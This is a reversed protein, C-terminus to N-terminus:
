KGAAPGMLGAKQGILDALASQVYARLEKAMAKKRVPADPDAAPAVAPPWLTYKLLQPEAKADNLVLLEDGRALAVAKGGGSMKFVTFNEDVFSDDFLSRGWSAHTADALGLLGLVSPIVNNHGAVRHDVTGRKDTLGPALFLLPVHHYLLNVETLKPRTAFGHDGVFVFLTDNFYSLKRAAAVFEGVAHDAYRMAELRRSFDGMETIPAAGPVPPVEFPAHNSLTMVAAFFPRGKEHAAQFERNCRDFLDGDSVGWVHDLYKADAAMEDGGVFTDVGQKRFFGRMNDWSFNGNYLFFTQYDRARLVSALSCFEQNSVGSEMLTEYGPLNPFGLQTAYIGQHTHSGASFARDFLVGDKAVADFRPTFSREAGTAGCFRASFSEMMVVVVNAPRGSSTKLKLSSAVPGRRLVTRDAPAVAVEGAAFISQRAVRRAEDAPLQTAWGGAERGRNNMDMAAHALTWLGNLSMQSVFENDGGFADGWQLPEAQVGGRAGLLLGVGIVAAGAAEVPLSLRRAPGAAAAPPGYAFVMAARLALHVVAALAAIGILYRVVPYNYWAMGGVIEPHDLYRIALQNYRSQFEKFFEFEAVLVFAAFGVVATALWLFARRTQPGRWPATWPVYCLVVAPLLLYAATSLDFRLGVVFARALEGWSADAPSRVRLILGLRLLSFLGLLVVLFAVFFRLNAPVHRWFRGPRSPPPSPDASPGPTATKVPSDSM